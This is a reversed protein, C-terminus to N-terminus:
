PWKAHGLMSRGAKRREHRNGDKRRNRQATQQLPTGEGEDTQVLFSLSLLVKWEM